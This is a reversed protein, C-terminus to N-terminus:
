NTKPNDFKIKKIKLQNNCDVLYTLVMDDFGIVSIHENPLKYESILSGDANYLVAYQEELLEPSDYKKIGKPYTQNTLIIIFVKNISDYLFGSHLSVKNSFKAWFENPNFLKKPLGANTKRFNKSKELQIIKESSFDSNYEFIQDDFNHFVFTRNKDFCIRVYLRNLLNHKKYLNPLSGIKRLHNKKQDFINIPNYQELDHKSSDFYLNNTFIFENENKINLGSINSYRLSDIKIENLDNNDVNYELFKNFGIYNNPDSVDTDFIQIYILGDKKKWYFSEMTACSSLDSSRLTIYKEIVGEKDTKLLHMRDYCVFYFKELKQSYLGRYYDGFVLRKNTDPYVVLKDELITYGLENKKNILADFSQLFEKHNKLNSTYYQSILNGNNDLLIFRNTENNIYYKHYLGLNDNVVKFKWGYDKKLLDIGKDDVGAVFGVIEIDNNKEQITNITLAINQLCGSCAPIPTFFYCRAKYNKSKDIVKFYEEQIPNANMSLVNMLIIAVLTMYKMYYKKNTLLLIYNLSSM